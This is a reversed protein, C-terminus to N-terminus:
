KEIYQEIVAKGDSAVSLTTFYVFFVCIMVRTFAYQLWPALAGRTRSRPRLHLCQLAGERDRGIISGRVNLVCVTVTGATTIGGTYNIVQYLCKKSKHFWAVSENSHRCFGEV